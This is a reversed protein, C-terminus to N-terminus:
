WRWGPRFGWRRLFRLRQGLARMRNMPGMGGRMSQGMPGMGMRGMGRQMGPGMQGQGRMGPGPGIGPGRMGLGMGLGLGFGRLGGRVNKLKELQEPTFIKEFNRGNQVGKKMREAQLKTIQDILGNIKNAEAKSDKMLPGLEDRMKKMQDRFSTMEDQRAKQFEKLKTEQDPTLNLWTKLREGPGGPVQAQQGPKQSSAPKDQAFSVLGFAIIGLVTLVALYKKM